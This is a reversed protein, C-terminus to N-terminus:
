REKRRWRGGKRGRKEKEGKRGRRREGERKEKRGRQIQKVAKNLFLKVVINAWRFYV